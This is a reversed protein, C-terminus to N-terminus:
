GVQVQKEPKVIQVRLIALMRTLGTPASPARLIARMRTSAMPALLAHREKTEQLVRVRTGLQVTQARPIVQMPTSAMLVPLAHRTKTEQLVRVRKGPM